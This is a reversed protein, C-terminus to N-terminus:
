NFYYSFFFLVISRGITRPYSQGTTNYLRCLRGDLFSALNESNTDPSITLVALKSTILVMDIDAKTNVSRTKIFIYHM